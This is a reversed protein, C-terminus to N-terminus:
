IKRGIWIRPNRSNHFIALIYIIEDDFSYFISYPFKKITYKRIKLRVIPYTETHKEIEKLSSNLVDLFTKDLNYKQEKYFTITEKIDSEAYPLIIIKRM